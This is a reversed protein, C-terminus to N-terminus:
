VRVQKVVVNSSVKGAGMGGTDMGVLGSISTHGVLGIHIIVIDTIDVMTSRRDIIGVMSDTNIITTDVMSKSNKTAIITINQAMIEQVTIVGMPM